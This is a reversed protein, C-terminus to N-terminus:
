ILKKSSLIAAGRAGIERIRTQQYVLGNQIVIKAQMKKRSGIIGSSIMAMTIQKEITTIIAHYRLDRSSEVSSPSSEPRFGRRPRMIARTAARNMDPRAREVLFSLYISVLMMTKQYQM